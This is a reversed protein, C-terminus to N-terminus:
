QQQDTGRKTDDQDHDPHQASRLRALEDAPMIEATTASPLAHLEDFWPLRSEVGIQRLPKVLEPQDLSGISINLRTCGITQFTLPTGCDACFGREAQSSSRFIKPAGQTWTVDSQQVGFFPGFFSGFAKQCMRCHCIDADFPAAALAYRISGCQCGGNYRQLGDTM